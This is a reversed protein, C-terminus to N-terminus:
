YNIQFQFRAVNGVFQGYSESGALGNATTNTRDTNLFAMTLEASPTIQWEIGAEWESVESYPSNRESKYGGQFYNYRVYPFWTGQRDVKALLMAYGGALSREELATQAANLAPGRGVNWEAQFGIPEPYWVFTGAIRKDMWYNRYISSANTTAANSFNLTGVPVSLGPAGPPDITSGIVAYEGYYGQVGIEMRQCNPFTFPVTLRSALHLGDNLEQLSGGQGNYAGIGFMGYNGSGKLGDELVDKFFDQAWTPTWYYFVGLDRENKVASNLADTRDLPVRNSSSQLNEWGYPVKSQGIRLRHVKDTTLYVDGYWDRIQTFYVNDNSGPVNSAFDPQLYVYLQEHVDGSVILRARRILFNQYDGISRDAAYQAPASDDTMSMTRNIRFQAYGRLSLKDYWKKPKPASSSSSPESSSAAQERAIGIEPDVFSIFEDIWEMAGSEREPQREGELEALRAETKALRAALDETVVAPQVPLSTDSLHISGGAASNELAVPAVDQGHSVSFFLGLSGLVALATRRM